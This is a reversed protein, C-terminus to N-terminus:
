YMLKNVPRRGERGMKPKGSFTADHIVRRKGKEEVVREPYVRLGRVMRALRPARLARGVKVEGVAKECVENAHKDASSHSGYALERELDGGPGADVPVGVRAIQTLREFQDINHQGGVFRTM